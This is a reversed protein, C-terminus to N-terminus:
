LGAPTLAEATGAGRGPLARAGFAVALLLAGALAFPAASARDYLAGAALPGVVRALSASAQFTGLAAGRERAAAAVSVLSLLAPQIVARGAAALALPALLVAVSRAGPIALFALASLASGGIVLTREPFRRSLAKMGGGQIAGMLIATGVLIFAVERADWGFRDMMFFQFVTEIQAVALSSVFYALCLRRVVPERLPELRGRAARAPASGPARPAERLAAAAHLWNAAALGAAALMPVSYGYPALLGGLAPGLVFGVGFCAGLMGMWRTREEEATVDAVYASALGVNAAFAGGLLRAAFLWPLSPALGLLALASATGAITALMVPRRGLRDSLRGWLPACVLQAGSYGMLLLGLQTASAGHERALFPLIPVVVGFGVLDIMVVSFL